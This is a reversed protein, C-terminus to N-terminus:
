LLDADADAVAGSGSGVVRALALANPMVHSSYYRTLQVKASYFARDEALRRTALAHSRAMLWGGIVIGCLKLYPVAVAQSHEAGRKGAELLRATAHRLLEVGELAAQATELAAIDRLERTMDDLLATM